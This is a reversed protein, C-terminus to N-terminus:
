PRVMVPGSVPTFERITGCKECFGEYPHLCSQQFEDSAIEVYHGHGCDGVQTDGYYSDAVM